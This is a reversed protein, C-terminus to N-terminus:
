YGWDSEKENWHENSQCITKETQISYVAIEPPEYTLVDM